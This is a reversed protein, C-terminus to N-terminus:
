IVQVAPQVGTVEHVLWAYILVQSLPVTIDSRRYGKFEFLTAEARDPNFLLADYCGTVWLVGRRSQYVAQLKREPECFVRHLNKEPVVCLSPIGALFKAM